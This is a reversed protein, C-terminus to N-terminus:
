LRKMSLSTKPSFYKGRFPRQIEVFLTPPPGVPWPAGCEHDTKERLSCKSLPQNAFCFPCFKQLMKYFLGGKAVRVLFHIYELNISSFDNSPLCVVYSQITPKRHYRFNQYRFTVSSIKNVIVVLIARTIVAIPTLRHWTFFRARVM